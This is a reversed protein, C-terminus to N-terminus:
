RDGVRRIALGLGVAALPSIEKIYEPDFVKKDIEIKRFPDAIEVAIGLNEQLYGPLSPIKASGGSLVIKEIEEHASTTRFFDFSRSIESAIDSNVRNIVNAVMEPEVGEVKEGKKSRDADDYSMNLDKQITETYRIGGISIDRTFSSTGNKLINISMVSAGINVLAIVEGERAEYNVGYMNELAFLDADVVVPNLGVETVVSTYETLKDKKAAVLLVEMQSQGEPSEVTGLIHFDINVDNIDFPIYQEAEWKISEELEDETMVPLKIKKIIISHGSLSLAVDKVKIKEETILGRIAEVVSGADMITGDVIIESALHKIGCKELKYGGKTEIIQVAKISSSGIDLGILSKSKSPFFM